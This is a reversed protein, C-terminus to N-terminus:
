GAARASQEQLYFAQAQAAQSFGLLATLASGAALSYKFPSM